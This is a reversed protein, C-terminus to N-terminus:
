NPPVWDNILKVLEGADTQERLRRMFAEDSCMTALEALIQLHEDTSEEPVSLAIFIDVPQKDLADFDVSNTTHLLAARVKNLYAVRCHPIAVGQGLGTSGLRERAVLGDFVVASTLRQQKAAILGALKELVGKKSRVEASIAVDDPTLIEHFRM